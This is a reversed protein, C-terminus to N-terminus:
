AFSRAGEARVGAARWRHVGLILMAEVMSILLPVWFLEGFRRWAELGSSPVFGPGLGDKFFWCWFATALISICVFTLAVRALINIAGLDRIFPIPLAALLAVGLPASFWALPNLLLM